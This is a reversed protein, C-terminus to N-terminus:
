KAVLHGQDVARKYWERALNDDQPVGHGNHYLVGISYQSDAIGQDAAKRYWEMAVVYDQSVGQGKEYMSGINHQAEAHGHEDAKLFWVMAQFYDQRLGSGTRYLLGLSSQADANGQDSAKRYSVIAQFYDRPTGLGSEFLTGVRYQAVPDGQDAAKLYWIMASQYNQHVGEGDRYLDGLAVQADKEGLSANVMTQTVDRTTPAPQEQPTQPLPKVDFYLSEQSYDSQQQLIPPPPNDPLLQPARPTPATGPDDIHSYNELATEVLGYVPNRRTSPPEQPSTEVPTERIAEQRIKMAALEASLVADVESGLVAELVVDPVAAFRRPHLIRFDPGKMNPLLRGGNRIYQVDNCISQIDDWLFFKMQTDPDVHCDVYFIDDPNELTDSTPISGRGVARIAQVHQQQEQSPDDEQM